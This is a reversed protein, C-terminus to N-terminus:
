GIAMMRMRMAGIQRGCPRQKAKIGEADDPTKSRRAPDNEDLDQRHRHVPQLGVREKQSQGTDGVKGESAQILRARARSSNPCPACPRPRRWGGRLQANTRRGRPGVARKTDLRWRDEM